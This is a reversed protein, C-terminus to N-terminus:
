QCHKRRLRSRLYATRINGIAWSADSLDTFPSDAWVTQEEQAVNLVRMLMATFEARTVENMPKFTGDEAYGKIIGLKSLVSVASAYSANDDVDPFASASATVVLSTMLLAVALVVSLVKKIGKM